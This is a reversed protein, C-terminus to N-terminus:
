SVTGTGSQAVAELADGQVQRGGRTVVPPVVRLALSRHLTSRGPWSLGVLRGQGAQGALRFRRGRVPGAEIIPQALEARDQGGSRGVGQRDGLVGDPGAGVRRQQRDRGQGRQHRVLGVPCEAEDPADLLLVLRGRGGRQQCRKSDRPLAVGGAGPGQQQLVPQVVLPLGRAPEGARGAHHAPQEHLEGLDAVGEQALLLRGLCGFAM